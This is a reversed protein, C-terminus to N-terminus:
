WYCQFNAQDYYVFLYWPNVAWWYTITLTFFILIKRATELV